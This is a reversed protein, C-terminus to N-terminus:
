QTVGSSTTSDPNFLTSLTMRREQGRDEWTVHLDIQNVGYDASIIQSTWRYGPFDPAFDGSQAGGTSGNTLEYLKTQALSTAERTHRANSAAASALSVGRMAVPLVIALLLLTVLVEALTFGRRRTM